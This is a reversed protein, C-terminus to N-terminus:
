WLGGRVRESGCGGGGCGRVVVPEGCGRVVVPGGCGRVVM